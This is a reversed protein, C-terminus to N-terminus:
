VVEMTNEHWEINSIYERIAADININNEVFIYFIVEDFRKEGFSTYNKRVKSTIGYGDQYKILKVITYDTNFM